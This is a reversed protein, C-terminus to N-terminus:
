PGRPKMVDGLMKAMDTPNNWDFVGYAVHMNKWDRQENYPSDAPVPAGNRILGKGAALEHKKVLNRFDVGYISYLPATARVLKSLAIREKKSLGLSLVLESENMRDGERM